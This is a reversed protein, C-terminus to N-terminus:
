KKLFKNKSSENLAWTSVFLDTKLEYQEAFCIPLLNIKQHKSTDDRLYEVSKRLRLAEDTQRFDRSGKPMNFYTDEHDLSLKYVGNNEDFKKRMLNPDSIKVKIEVELM